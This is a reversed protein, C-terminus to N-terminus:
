ELAQTDVDGKQTDVDGKQTDVDGKKEIKLPKQDKPFDKLEYSIYLRKFLEFNIINKCNLQNQQEEKLPTNSVYKWTMFNIDTLKKLAKQFPEIIRTKRNRTNSKKVESETPIKSCSELLSKISRKNYQCQRRNSEMGYYTELEAGLYYANADPEKLRNLCKAHHKIKAHATLWQAYQPFFHVNINEKDYLINSILQLEGKLKGRLEVIYMSKITPTYENRVRKLLYKIEEPTPEKGQSLLYAKINIAAKFQDLSNKGRYTTKQTLEIIANDILKVSEVGFNGGRSLEKTNTFM